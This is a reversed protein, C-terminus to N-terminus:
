GLTLLGKITQYEQRFRMEAVSNAWEQFIREIATAVEPDAHKLLPVIKRTKQDLDMFLNIKEDTNLSPQSEVKSASMTLPVTKTLEEADSVFDGYFRNLGDSIDPAQVAIEELLVRTETEMKTVMAMHYLLSGAM